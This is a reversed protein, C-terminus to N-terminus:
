RRRFWLPLEPMMAMDIEYRLNKDKIEVGLTFAGYSRITLTAKGDKAVVREKPPRFTPHLHFYVPGTIPSNDTPEITLDLKLYGKDETGSLKEVSLKRGDHENLGGFRGKHPDDPDFEAPTITPPARRDDLKISVDEGALADLLLSLNSYDDGGAETPTRSFLVPRVGFKGELRTRTWDREAETKYSMLAYHAPKKTRLCATVERMLNALDPDNMSFGVFLVPHTMFIAMLKRRADDSAVYRSVYSRETLIINEEPDDYRGHLYVVQRKDRRLNFNILFDSVADIENWRVISYEKKAADLAEEICPDFNTTLFHRFPMKALALHPENLKGQSQFQDNIFQCFARPDLEEKFLEAIWPLDDFLKRVDSEDSSVDIKRKWDAGSKKLAADKLRQLLGLWNPYGCKASAGAGIVVIPPRDSRILDALEDFATDKEFPDFPAIPATASQGSIPAGQAASFGGSLSM